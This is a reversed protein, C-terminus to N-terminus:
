RQMAKRKLLELCMAADKDDIAQFSKQLTGASTGDMRFGLRQARKVFGELRREIPPEHRRLLSQEPLGNAIVQAVSTNALLMFEEVLTNAETRVYANVDVPKGEDLSFVVKIKNDSTM